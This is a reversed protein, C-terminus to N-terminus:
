LTIAKLGLTTAAASQHIDHTHITDFKHHLATILHICDSARLFVAPSLTMFTRAAAETIAPALPLWTWYDAIDDRTFQNVANQFDSRSCKKERLRRHFTAMVEVRALESACIKLEAEFVARVAPMEPEILYFKVLTSTDCFIM